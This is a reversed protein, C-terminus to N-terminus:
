PSHCEHDLETLFQLTVEVIVSHTTIGLHQLPKVPLTTPYDELPEVSSCLLLAAVPRSETFHELM